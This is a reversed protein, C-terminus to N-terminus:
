RHRVILKAMRVSRVKYFKESTPVLHQKVHRRQKSTLTKPTRFFVHAKGGPHAIIPNRIAPTNSFELEIQSGWIRGMVRQIAPRLYPQPRMHRTGYEVFVSWPADAHISLTQDSQRYTYGIGAKLQGTREPALERAISVIAEGTKRMKTDVDGMVQKTFQDGLWKFGSKLDFAM